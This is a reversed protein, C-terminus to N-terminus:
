IPELVSGHKRDYLSEIRDISPKIRGKSLAIL